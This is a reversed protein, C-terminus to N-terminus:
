RATTTYNCLETGYITRQTNSIHFLQESRAYAHFTTDSIIYLTHQNLNLSVVLDSLPM